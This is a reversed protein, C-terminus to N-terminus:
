IRFRRLFIQSFGFLGLLIGVGVFLREYRSFFDKEAEVRKGGAKLKITAGHGDESTVKLTWFGERDPCFVVRGLADSRGVQFPIKDAEYFVEYAEYSFGKGGQFYFHVVVCGGEQSVRHELDHPFTLSFFFLILFTIM